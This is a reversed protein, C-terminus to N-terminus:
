LCGCGSCVAIARAGAYFGGKCVLRKKNASTILPCLGQKDGNVRSTTVIRRYVHTAPHSGPRETLALPAQVARPCLRLASCAPAPFLGPLSPWQRLNIHRAAHLVVLQPGGVPLWGLGYRGLRRSSPPRATRFHRNMRRCICPRPLETPLAPSQFDGHRRNM